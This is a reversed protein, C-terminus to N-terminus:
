EKRARWLRIRNHMLANGRQIAVALLSHVHRSVTDASWLGLQEESAEAMAEVLKEADPAMGGTTEVALPLLRFGWREATEDYKRTESAAFSTSSRCM